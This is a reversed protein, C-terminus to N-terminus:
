GNDKLWSGHERVWDHLGTEEWRSHANSHVLWCECMRLSHVVMVSRKRWWSRSWVEMLVWSPNCGRWTGKHTDLPLGARSGQFKELKASGWKPSSQDGMGVGPIDPWMLFTKPYWLQKQPQQCKNWLPLSVHREYCLVLLCVPGKDQSGQLRDLWGQCGIM